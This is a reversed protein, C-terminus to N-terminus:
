RAVSHHQHHRHSATFQSSENQHVIAAGDPHPDPNEGRFFNIINRIFKKIDNWLEEIDAVVDEHSIEDFTYLAVIVATVMALVEAIGVAVLIEFLFEMGYYVLAVEIGLALANLLFEGASALVEKALNKLRVMLDEMRLTGLHYQALLRSSEVGNAALLGIQGATLPEANDSAKHRIYVAAAYARAYTSGSNMQAEAMDQPIRDLIKEMALFEQRAMFGASHDISQTVLQMLEAVDVEEFHDAKQLEQWRANDKLVQNNASVACHLLNVLWAGQEDSDHGELASNLRNEIWADTVRTDMAAYMQDIARCMEAADARLQAADSVPLHAALVQAMSKTELEKHLQNALAVQKLETVKEGVTNLITSIQNEKNAM